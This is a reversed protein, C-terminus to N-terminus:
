AECLSHGTGPHRRVHIQRRHRRVELFAQSPGCLVWHLEHRAVRTVVNLCATRWADARLAQWPLRHARLRGAETPHASDPPPCRVMHCRLAAPAGTPPRRGVGGGDAVSRARRARVIATLIAEPPRRPRGTRSSASRRRSCSAGDATPSSRGERVAEIRRASVSGGISTPPLARRPLSSRRRPDPRALRASHPGQRAQTAWARDQRATTVLVPLDSSPRAVAATAEIMTWRRVAKARHTSPGPASGDCARTTRQAPAIVSVRESSQARIRPAWSSARSAPTSSAAPPWRPSPRAEHM